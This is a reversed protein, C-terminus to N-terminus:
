IKIPPTKHLEKLFYKKIVVVVTLYINEKRLIFNLILEKLEM